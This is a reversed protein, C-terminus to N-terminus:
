IRLHYWLQQLMKAATAAANHGIYQDMGVVPDPGYMSFYITKLRSVARSINVTLNIGGVAQQMIIFTNYNIPLANKKVDSYSNQLASDLTVQDGVLRVHSIQWQTSTNNEYASGAVHSIIPDPRRSSGRVPLVVRLM